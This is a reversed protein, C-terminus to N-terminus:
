KIRSIILIKPMNKKSHWKKTNNFVVGEYTLIHLKLNYKKALWTVRSKYLIYHVYINILRDYASCLVREDSKLSFFDNRQTFEFKIREM